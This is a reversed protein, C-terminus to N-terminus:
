PQVYCIVYCFSLIKCEVSKSQPKSDCKLFIPTCFNRNFCVNLIPINYAINSLDDKSCKLFWYSIVSTRSYSLLLSFFFSFRFILRFSEFSLCVICFLWFCNMRHSCRDIKISIWRLGWQVVHICSTMMRMSCWHQKPRKYYKAYFKLETLVATKLYKRKWYYIIFFAMLNLFIYLINIYHSIIPMSSYSCSFCSKLLM